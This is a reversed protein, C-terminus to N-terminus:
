APSNQFITSLIQNFNLTQYILILFIKFVAKFIFSNRWLGQVGPWYLPVMINM